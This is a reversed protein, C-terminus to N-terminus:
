PVYDKLLSLMHECAKGKLQENDSVYSKTKKNWYSIEAECVEGESAVERGPAKIISLTLPNESQGEAAFAYREGDNIRTQIMKYSLGQVEVYFQNTKPVYGFHWDKKKMLVEPKSQSAVARNSTEAAIRSFDDEVENLWTFDGHLSAPERGDYQEEEKATDVDDESSPNRDVSACATVAFVLGIIAGSKIKSIYKRYKM